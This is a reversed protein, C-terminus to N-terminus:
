LKLYYDALLASFEATYQPKDPQYITISASNLHSTEQKCYVWVGLKSPKGQRSVIDYRKFLYLGSQRASAAFNLHEHQPLLLWAQGNETLLTNISQCLDAFSLSDNHRALNRQNNNGVLHQSFFPPNCIIRDYTHKACHNQFQQISDQHVNIRDQFPSSIINETAQQAADKDLEVADINAHCRQALMLALLGTGTGIDLIRQANNVDCLAGFLCADLSVKMACKDQAVTFQKFQFGSRNPM